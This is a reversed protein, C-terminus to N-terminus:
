NRSIHNQNHNSIHTTGVAACYDTVFRVMIELDAETIWKLQPKGPFVYLAPVPHNAIDVLTYFYTRFLLHSGASRYQRHAIDDKPNFVFSL